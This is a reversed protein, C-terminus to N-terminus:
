SRQLKADTASLSNKQLELMLEETKHRANEPIMQRVFLTNPVYGEASIHTGEAGSKILAEKATTARDAFLKINAALDRTDDTYGGLKLEVPPYSKLIAAINKAQEQSSTKLISKGTEFYLRDMTFWTNKDAPKNTDTIFEVLKKEASNGGVTIENADALKLKGMAGLNYVFDGDANVSGTVTSTVSSTNGTSAITKITKEEIITHSGRM